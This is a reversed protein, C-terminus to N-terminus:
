LKISIQRDSLFGCRLEALKANNLQALAAASIESKNRYM